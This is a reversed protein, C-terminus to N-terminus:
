CLGSECNVKGYKRWNVCTPTSYTAHSILYIYKLCMEHKEVNEAETNGCNTDFYHRLLAFMESVQKAQSINYLYKVQLLTTPLTGATFPGYLGAAPTWQRSLVLGAYFV